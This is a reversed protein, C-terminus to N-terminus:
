EAAPAGSVPLERVEEPTSQDDAEAPEEPLALSMTQGGGAAPRVVREVTLGPPLETEGAKGTVTVQYKGQPVRADYSGGKVPATIPEGGDVPKFTVEGDVPEGEYSASGTVGYDDPAHPDADDGGVSAGENCGAALLLVAFLSAVRSPSSM